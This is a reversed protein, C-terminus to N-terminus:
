INSSRETSQFRTISYVMSRSSEHDTMIVRFRIVDLACRVNNIIGLSIAMFMRCTNMSGVHYCYFICYISQEKEDFSYM